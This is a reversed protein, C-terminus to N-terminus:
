GYNLQWDSYYVGAISEHYLDVSDVANLTETWIPAQGQPWKVSAPWIVTLATAPNKFFIKYAAGATPNSLTITLTGTAATADVLHINGGNFDITLSQNNGVVTQVGAQVLGFNPAFAAGTLQAGNGGGSHDHESIKEWAGTLLQQTWNRTSATPVTLTLGLSITQYGV